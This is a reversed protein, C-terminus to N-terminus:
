LGIAQQLWSPSYNFGQISETYGRQYTGVNMGQFGSGYGRPQIKNYWPYHRTHGGYMIGPHGQHIHHIQSYYPHYQGLHSPQHWPLNVFPAPSCLPPACIGIGMSHASNPEGAMMAIAVVIIAIVQVKRM